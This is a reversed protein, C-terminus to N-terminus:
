ITRALKLEFEPNTVYEMYDIRVDADMNAQYRIRIAPAVILDLVHEKAVWRVDSTEESTILQGGVARCAYDLMLKAPVDTVGDHWKYTGTNSYVGILCSVEVDIGGEEKIERSLADILNRRGRSARRSLGM